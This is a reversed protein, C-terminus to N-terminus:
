KIRFGFIDIISSWIDKRVPFFIFIGSTWSFEMKRSVAFNRLCFIKLWSLGLTAHFGCAKLKFIWKHRLSFDKTWNELFITVLLQHHCRQPRFHGIKSPWWWYGVVFCIQALRFMGIITPTPSFQPNCFPGSKYSLCSRFLAKKTFNQFIKSFRHPWGCIIDRYFYVKQSMM